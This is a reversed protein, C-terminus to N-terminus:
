LLTRKVKSHYLLAPDRRGATSTYVHLLAAYVWVGSILVVSSALGMLWELASQQGKMLNHKNQEKTRVQYRRNFGLYQHCQECHHYTNYAAYKSLKIRCTRRRLFVEEQRVPNGKRPCIISNWLTHCIKDVYTELCYFCANSKMPEQLNFSDGGEARPKYAPNYVSSIDDYKPDHVTYDFPITKMIEPNPWSTKPPHYQVEQLQVGLHM